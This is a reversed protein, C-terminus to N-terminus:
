ACMSAKPVAVNAYLETVIQQGTPTYKLYDIAGEVHEHVRSWYFESLGLKVDTLHNYGLSQNTGNQEFEYFLAPLKQLYNRDSFQGILDAARGLDALAKVNAPMPRDIAPFRTRDIINQVTAIDLLTTTGFRECVFQKGRDVHYPSLAADTSGFPLFVYEEGIGTIHRGLEADDQQCIGKCYGIDHCLLATIVHLWDQQTVSTSGECIRKAQLIEQGVATVLLTHELDHYLADSQAITGLVMRATSRLFEGYCPDSGCFVTDYTRQLYTTFTEILTKKPSYM